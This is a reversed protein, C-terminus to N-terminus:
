IVGVGYLVANDGTMYRELFEVFSSALPRFGERWVFLVPSRTNSGAQLHVAYFHSGILYDAFVFYEAANPVGCHPAEEVVPTIDALRWFGVTDNDMDDRGHALGNFAAFYARLEVPLRIGHDAEFAAIESESAGAGPEAGHCRWHEALLPLLEHITM